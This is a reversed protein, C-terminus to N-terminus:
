IYITCKGHWVGWGEFCPMKSYQIHWNTDSFVDCATLLKSTHVQLTENYSDTDDIHHIELKVIIMGFTMTIKPTRLDKTRLPNFNTLKTPKSRGAQKREYYWALSWFDKATLEKM